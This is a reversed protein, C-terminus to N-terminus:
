SLKEQIKELRSLHTQGDEQLKSAAKNVQEVAQHTEQIQKKTQKIEQLSKIAEPNQREAETPEPPKVLAQALEGLSYGAITPGKKEGQLQQTLTAQAEDVNKEAEEIKPLAEETKSQLNDAVQKIEETAQVVQGAAQKATTRSDVDAVPAVSNQQLRQPDPPQATPASGASQNLDKILQAAEDASKRAAQAQRLAEEAKKQRKNM